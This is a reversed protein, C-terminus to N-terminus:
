VLNMVGLSFRLNKFVDLKLPKTFIDAVQDKSKVNELKVEKKSICDRIFHYKTNIHKRREHFVPNLPVYLEPPPTLITKKEFAFTWTALGEGVILTVKFSKYLLLLDGELVAFTISKGADSIAEIKVTAILPIGGLIYKWRKTCGVTGEEGEIVEAGTVVAPCVKVLDNMNLKFFNYFKDAPCTIPAKAVLTDVTNAM